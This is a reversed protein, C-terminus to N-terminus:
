AHPGLHPSKPPETLLCVCCGSWHVGHSSPMSACHLEKLCQDEKTTWWELEWTNGTHMSLVTCVATHVCAHTEIQPQIGVCSAEQIEVALRVEKNEECQPRFSRQSNRQALDNMMMMVKLDIIWHQMRVINAEPLTNCCAFISVIAEKLFLAWHFVTWIWIKKCDRDVLMRGHMMTFNSKFNNSHFTPIKLQFNVSIGRYSTWRNSLSKINVPFSNIQDSVFHQMHTIEERM